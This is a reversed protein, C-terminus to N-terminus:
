SEKDGRAPHALGMVELYRRVNRELSFREAAQRLFTRSPPERLTTSMAEALPLPDKIPVLHGYRGGDLIERPGSPCDTAVCPTGLALAEALVNGFGERLSSLVFLDARAFLPFPNAAFGPLDVNQAVGLRRALLLLRDRQGGDGLIILRCDIARRVWAFARLLTTFDKVETLRGASLILPGPGEALWPHVLPEAALERIHELDLPNWITEVPPHSRGQFLAILAEGVGRSIAILGDAAAYLDALRRRELFRILIPSRRLKEQVNTGVRFFSRPRIARPTAALLANSQDKNSLLATPRRERLYAELRRLNAPSPRSELTVSTYAGRIAVLDPHEGAPLLLDVEMGAALFGNVLNIM